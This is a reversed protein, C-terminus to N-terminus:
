PTRSQEPRPSVTTRGSGDAASRVFSLSLAEHEIARDEAHRALEDTVAVLERAVDLRTPSRGPLLM